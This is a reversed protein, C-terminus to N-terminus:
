VSKGLAIRIVDSAGAQQLLGSCAEITFGTTTIDDLLLVKSGLIKIDPNVFVSNYHTDLSRYGGSHMSQIPIHRILLNPHYAVVDKCVTSLLSNLGVSYMYQKSSPVISVLDFGSLKIGAKACYNQFKGTFYTVASKHKSSSADKFDLLKKSDLSENFLPNRQGNKSFPHYEM